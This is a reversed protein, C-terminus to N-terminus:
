QIKWYSIIEEICEATLKQYVAWDPVALALLSRVQEWGDLSPMWLFTSNRFKASIGGPEPLPAPLPEDEPLGYHIDFVILEGNVFCMVSEPDSEHRLWVAKGSATLRKLANLLVAQCQRIRETRVVM